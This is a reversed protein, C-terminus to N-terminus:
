KVGEFGYGTLEITEKFHNLNVKQPDYKVAAANDDLVVNVNQVGDLQSLNEAVMEACGSCSMGSIKITQQKM